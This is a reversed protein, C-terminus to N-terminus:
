HPKHFPHAQKKSSQMISKVNIEIHPLKLRLSNPLQLRNRFKSRIEVIASFEAECKYSSLFPMHVKSAETSILPYPTQLSMRFQVLKRANFNMELSFDESLDTLEENAKASIETTMAPQFPNM